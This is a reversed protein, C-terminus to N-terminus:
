VVHMKLKICDGIYVLNAKMLRDWCGFDDRYLSEESNNQIREWLRAYVGSTSGQMSLM